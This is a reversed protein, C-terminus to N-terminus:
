FFIDSISNGHLILVLYEIITRNVYCRAFIYIIDFLFFSVRAAASISAKIVASPAHLSGLIEIDM